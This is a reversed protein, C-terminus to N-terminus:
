FLCAKVPNSSFLKAGLLFVSRFCASKNSGKNLSDIIIGRRCTVSYFVCTSVSAMFWTFFFFVRYPYKFRGTEWVWPKIENITSWLLPKPKHEPFKQHVNAIIKQCKQVLPNTSEDLIMIYYIIWIIKSIEGDVVQMINKILRWQTLQPPM